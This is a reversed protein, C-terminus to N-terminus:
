AAPPTAAVLAATNQEVQAAAADVIPDTNAPAAQFAAVAKNTADTNAAVATTLRDTAASMIHVRENLARLEALVLRRHEIHPFLWHLLKV